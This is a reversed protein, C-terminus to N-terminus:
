KKTPKFATDDKPPNIAGSAKLGEVVEPRQTSAAEANSALITSRERELRTVTSLFTGINIALVGFMAIIIINGRPTNILGRILGANPDGYASLPFLLMGLTILAALVLLMIATAVILSRSNRELAEM